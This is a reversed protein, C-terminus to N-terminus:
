GHRGGRLTARFGATRNEGMHGSARLETGDVDVMPPAGPGVAVGIPGEFRVRKGCVSCEARVTIAVSDPQRALAEEDTLDVAFLRHVDAFM